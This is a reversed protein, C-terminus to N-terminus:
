FPRVEVWGLRSNLGAFVLLGVLVFAMGILIAKIPTLWAPRNSGRKPLQEGNSEM